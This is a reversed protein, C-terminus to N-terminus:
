KHLFLLSMRRMCHHSVEKLVIKSVNVQINFPKLLESSKQVVAREKQAELFQNM